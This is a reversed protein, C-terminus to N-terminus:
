KKDIIKNIVLQQVVGFGNSVVWYLALGAPFSRASMFIMIPLFINMTKQTTEMQENGANGTKMTISQLYTTIAALLPLGYMLHDPKDLNSIWFFSKNMAEYMGPDKFAYTVPERMVKFFALLIPLQVLLMLCGSAPNYKYEKYLESMKKQQVMPDDKYKEQIKLLEPQIEGMVKMSKAQKIALPLLLLKFVITTLIISMAYFSFHEPESGFGSVLSYVTSLLKGMINGFFGMM